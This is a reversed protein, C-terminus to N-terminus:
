NNKNNKKPSVKLINLKYNYIHGWIEISYSLNSLFLYNYLLIM